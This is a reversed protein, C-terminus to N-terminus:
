EPVFPHVGFATWGLIRKPILRQRIFDLASRIKNNPTTTEAPSPAVTAHGPNRPGFLEPTAFSALGGIFILGVLETSHFISAGHDGDEGHIQFSCIKRVM